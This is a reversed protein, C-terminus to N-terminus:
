PVLTTSAKSSFQWIVGNGPGDGYLITAYPDINGLAIWANAGAPLQYLSPTDGQSAIALLSGDAAIGFVQTWYIFGDAPIQAVGPDSRIQWTAGGDTSCRLATQEDTPAADYSVGCITWMSAGAPIRAVFGVENQFLQTFTQGGDTSKWLAKPHDDGSQVLLSGSSPDLWLANLDAGIHTGLARWTAMDDTSSWLQSTLPSQQPVERLAYVVGNRTALAEMGYPQSAQLQRWTAGGNETAYNLYSTPNPGGAGGGRPRFSLVAVAVSPDTSDIIIQCENRDLTVPVNAQRPWHAGRDSTRWIHAAVGQATPGSLNDSSPECFYATAGDSSAVFAPRPAPPLEATSQWSLPKSVLPVFTATPGIPVSATPTVQASPTSRATATSKASSCGALLLLPIMLLPAGHRAFLRVSRWRHAILPRFRM